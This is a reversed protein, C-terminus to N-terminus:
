IWPCQQVIRTFVMPWEVVTFLQDWKHDNMCEDLVFTAGTYLWIDDHNYSALQGQPVEASTPLATASNVPQENYQVLSTSAIQLPVDAFDSIM